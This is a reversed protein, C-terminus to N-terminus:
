ILLGDYEIQILGEDMAVLVKVERIVHFQRDPKGCALEYLCSDVDSRVSLFKESVQGVFELNNDECRAM